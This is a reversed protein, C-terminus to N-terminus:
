EDPEFMNPSSNTSLCSNVPETSTVPERITLPITVADKYLPSPLPNNLIGNDANASSPNLIAVPLTLAETSESLPNITADASLPESNVPEISTLPLTIASENLPDNLPLPKFKNLM